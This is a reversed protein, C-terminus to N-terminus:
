IIGDEAARARLRNKLREYRKRLTASDADMVAAIDAWALGRDLRLTLLSQEDPALTSRM